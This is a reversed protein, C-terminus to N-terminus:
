KTVEEFESHSQCDECWNSSDSEIVTLDPTVNSLTNDEYQNANVWVVCQYQIDTGGCNSCVLNSTAQKHM